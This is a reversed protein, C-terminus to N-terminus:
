LDLKEFFLLADIIPIADAVRSRKLKYVIQTAPLAFQKSFYHLNKDLADDAYKAEILQEIKGDNVLAFDVERKDKDRLYHLHYAQGAYDRKAYVHKLLNLAAMNEFKAGNDVKVLTTDFFYIKPTKLLSRTINKSYPTVRFVIYLAELVRLYKKVTVPSIDVDRAISEYSIPSGVRERLLEFVNRIAALDHISDFELVDITILSNIYQLRWRDADANTKALFPEPFGSRTMLKHLDIPHKLQHLESPSLPLLHHAFYRGALSDGANSFVDLRASGTVLIKLHASKTDYLGKLYNKWEPMKHLEDLIVLETDDIWAQKLIMDRDLSQDWNLYEAHAFKKAITKAITTKGVQRPGVLFVMKKQLDKLIYQTQIRKM